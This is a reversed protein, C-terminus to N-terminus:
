AADVESGPVSLTRCFEEIAFESMLGPQFRGDVFHASLIEEKIKHVDVLRMSWDKFLQRSVDGCTIVQVDHHRGDEMIRAFCKAVAERNGEILQLFNCEDFVLMGTLLDRGNNKESSELIAKLAAADLNDHKSAYVLRTLQMVSEAQAVPAVANERLSSHIQPVLSLPRAKSRTIGRSEMWDRIAEWLDDSSCGEYQLVDNLRLRLDAPPADDWSAQNGKVLDRGTWRIDM